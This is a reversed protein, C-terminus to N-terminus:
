WRANNEQVLLIKHKHQLVKFPIFLSFLLSVVLLRPILSFYFAYLEM